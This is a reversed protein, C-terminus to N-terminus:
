PVRRVANKVAAARRAFKAHNEGSLPRLKHAHQAVHGALEGFKLVYQVGCVADEARFKRLLAQAVQHIRLGHEAVGLAFLLGGRQLCRLHRLGRNARRTEARIVDQFREAERGIGDGTM